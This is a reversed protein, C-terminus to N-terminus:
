AQRYYDVVKYRKGLFGLLIAALLAMGAYFFFQASGKFVNLASALAVALNAATVSLNWFSMITGKMERPAQSYAFELGTTSVLIEATTLVIYPAIQWLVSLKVGAEVPVNLAGAIVYSLAGIAMGIPMRRLPTLEYGWRQFAPYIIGTTLPILLMVLLPNVLQMQSPEFTWSGVQLDM